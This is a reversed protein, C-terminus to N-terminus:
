RQPVKRLCAMSPHSAAEHDRFGELATARQAEVRLCGLPKLAPAGRIQRLVELGDVKPRKLDLLHM